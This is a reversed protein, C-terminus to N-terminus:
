LNGKEQFRKSTEFDKRLQKNEYIIRWSATSSDSAIISLQIFLNPTDFNSFWSSKGGRIGALFYESQSFISDGLRHVARPKGYKESLVSSLENYRVLINSGSPDNLSDRSNIVIRWLRDNSGFSLLAASQDTLAKEMKTAIFSKGFDLTPIEKLEIGRAQLETTSVGWPLGLPAEQSVNQANAIACLLLASFFFAASKLIM